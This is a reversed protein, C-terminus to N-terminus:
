RTISDAIKAFGKAEMRWERSTVQSAERITPYDMVLILPTIALTITTRVGM